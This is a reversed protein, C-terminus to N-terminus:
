RVAALQYRHAVSLRGCFRLERTVSGSSHCLPWSMIPAHGEGEGVGDVPGEVTQAFGEDFCRAAGALDHARREPGVQRVFVDRAQLTADIGREFALAALRRPPCARGLQSLGIE